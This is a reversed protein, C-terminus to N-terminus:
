SKREKIKTWYHIDMSTQSNILLPYTRENLEHRYRKENKKTDMFFM